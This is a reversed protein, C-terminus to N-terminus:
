RKQHGHFALAGTEVSFTGLQGRMALGLDFGQLHREQVGLAM